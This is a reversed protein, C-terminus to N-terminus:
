ERTLYESPSASRFSRRRPLGRVRNGRHDDGHARLPQLGAMGATGGMGGRCRGSHVGRRGPRHHDVPERGPEGVAAIVCCGCTAPRVVAITSARKSCRESFDGSSCFNKGNLSSWCAAVLAPFANTSAADFHFSSVLLARVSEDFGLRRAVNIVVAKFAREFVRVGKPQGTTGSTYILYADREPDRAIPPTSRGSAM